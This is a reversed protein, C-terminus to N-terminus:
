NNIRHKERALVEPATYLEHVCKALERGAPSDRKPTTKM